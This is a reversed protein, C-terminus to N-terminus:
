NWESLKLIVWKESGNLITSFVRMWVAELCYLLMAFCYFANLLTQWHRQLDVNLQWAEIFNWSNKVNMWIHRYNCKKLWRDDFWRYYVSSYYKNVYLHKYTIIWLVGNNERWCKCYSKMVWARPHNAETYRLTIHCLIVVFYTYISSRIRFVPLSFHNLSIIICNSNQTGIFHRCVAFYYHFNLPLLPQSYAISLYM